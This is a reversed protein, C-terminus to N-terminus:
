FNTRFSVRLDLYGTTKTRLDEAVGGPEYLFFSSFGGVPTGGYPVGGPFVTAYLGISGGQPADYSVGLRVMGRTSTGPNVITGSPKEYFLKGEVHGTLNKGMPRETAYGVGVLTASRNGAKIRHVGFEYGMSDAILADSRPGFYTARTGDVLEQHGDGSRSAAYSLGVPPKGNKGAFEYRIGYNTARAEFASRRGTTSDTSGKADVNSAGLWVRVSRHPQVDLRWDTAKLSRGSYSGGFLGFSFAVSRGKADEYVTTANASGRSQYPTQAFSASALLFPVLFTFRRM